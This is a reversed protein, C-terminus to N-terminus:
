ASAAPPLRRRRRHGSSARAARGLDEGEVNAAISLYRQMSSRDVEGPVTSTKSRRGRRSDDPQQRREVKSLPMTAIQEPRNIRLSLVQVQVQYDTGSKSDLWYNKALYRSSSTGM